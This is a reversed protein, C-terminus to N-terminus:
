LAGRSPARESVAPGVAHRLEALVGVRGLREQLGQDIAVAVAGLGAGAVVHREQLVIGLRRERDDALIGLELRQLLIGLVMEGGAVRARQGRRGVLDVLLEDQDVRQGLVADVLEVQFGGHLPALLLDLRNVGLERLTSCEPTPPSFRAWGSSTGPAGSEPSYM